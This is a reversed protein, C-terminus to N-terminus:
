LEEEKINFWETTKFDGPGFIEDEDPEDGVTYITMDDDWRGKFDAWEEIKKIATEKDAYVGFYNNSYAQTDEAWEYDEYDTTVVFVKM